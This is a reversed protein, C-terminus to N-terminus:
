DKKAGYYFYSDFIDCNGVACPDKTEQMENELQQRLLNKMSAFEKDAALNSIQGPDKETNYLEEKPRKEAALQWFVTYNDKNTILEHKSPSGDDIDALEPPRGAPWRDPQLNEIYLMNETHIARRPYGRNEIRANNIHRQFGSFVADRNKDVRGSRGALLQEKFSKGTMNAPIAIGALDLFTPALDTLSIMDTIQQHDDIANGWRVAFPVRTGYQYNTSKARPFPMGNDSTYVIVTNDLEGSQELIQLISGLEDDFWEIEFLYDAIDMRTVESDPLFPPVQIKNMDIRGSDRGINRKFPRHPETPSVWFSFPSDIPKTALFQQLNQAHDIQSLNPDVDIRKIGNYDNGAPNGNAAKGPGWGKGTYGVHYGHQKLIDQYTQLTLPFEGWLQAASELRWFHQGALIASRSATCTPASAYANEFYIGQQAISDFHPTKVAPYGAYSTHIWSQDDTIILLFNPKKQPIFPNRINLSILVAATISALLLAAVTFFFSKRSVKLM